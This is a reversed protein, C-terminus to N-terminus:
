HNNGKNKTFKLTKPLKLWKKNRAIRLTSGNGQKLTYTGDPNYTLTAELDESGEDNTIEMNAITQNKVESCLIFWKRSDSYDGLYGDMEGMFEQGKVTINGEYLNMVIYIDYESNYITRNFVSDNQASVSISCILATITFIERITM